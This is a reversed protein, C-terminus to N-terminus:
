DKINIGLPVYCKLRNIWWRERNRRIDMTNDPTGQIVSLLSATFTKCEPTTLKNFHRAVPTERNHRVDALHEKWRTIFNRKTEGVYQKKCNTANWDMYWM